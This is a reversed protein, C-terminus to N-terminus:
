CDLDHHLTGAASGLTNALDESLQSPEQGRVQQIFANLQACVARADGRERAALTANLKAKLGNRTAAPIAPDAIM